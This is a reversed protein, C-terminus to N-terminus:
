IYDIYLNYRDIYIYSTMSYQPSNRTSYIIDKNTIQRIHLLVHINMELERNIGGEQTEGETVM